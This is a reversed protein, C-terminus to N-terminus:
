GEFDARLYFPSYGRSVRGVSGRRRGGQRVGGEGSAKLPFGFRGFVQDLQTTGPIDLQKSKLPHGTGVHVDQSVGGM